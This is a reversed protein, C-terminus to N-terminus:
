PNPKPERHRIATTCTQGLCMRVVEGTSTNVVYIGNSQSTPVATYAPSASHSFGAVLMVIAMLIAAWLVTRQEM